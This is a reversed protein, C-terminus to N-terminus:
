YNGTGPLDRPVTICSRGIGERLTYVALINRFYQRSNLLENLLRM